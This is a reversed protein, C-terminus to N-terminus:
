NPIAAINETLQWDDVFRQVEKPLDGYRLESGEPTLRVNALVSEPRRTHWAALIKTALLLDEPYDEPAYGWDGVIVLDNPLSGATYGRRYDRDLNRDFWQPNGKYHYSGFPRVQVATFVSPEVPDSILWYTQNADLGSDQLTVSTASRLDPIVINAKGNTTFSRAYDDQQEFQRRTIRQLFSSAARINSGLLEDGYREDNADADLHLYDRLQEATIFAVM